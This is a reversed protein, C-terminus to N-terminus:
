TTELLKLIKKVMNYLKKCIIIIKLIKPCQKGYKICLYKYFSLLHDM